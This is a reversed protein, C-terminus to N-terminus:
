EITMAGRNLEWLDSTVPLNDLVMDDGQWTSLTVGDFPKAENLQNLIFLPGGNPFGIAVYSDKRSDRL